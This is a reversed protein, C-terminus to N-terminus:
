ATFRITRGNLPKQAIEPTNSTYTSSHHRCRPREPNNAGEIADSCALKHNVPSWMKGAADKKLGSKNEKLV